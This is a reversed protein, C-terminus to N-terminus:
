DGKRPRNYTMEGGEEYMCCGGVFVPWTYSGIAAVLKHVLFVVCVCAYMMLVNCFCIKAQFICTLMYGLLTPAQVLAILKPIVTGLHSWPFFWVPM